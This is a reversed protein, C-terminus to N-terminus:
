SECFYVSNAYNALVSIILSYGYYSSSFAISASTKIFTCYLNCITLLISCSTCVKSELLESSSDFATVLPDTCTIDTIKCSVCLKSESITKFDREIILFISFVLGAAKEWNFFSEDYLFLMPKNSLPTMFNVYLNLLNPLFRWYSSTVSIMCCTLYSFFLRRRYNHSSEIGFEYYCSIFVLDKLKITCFNEISENYLWM